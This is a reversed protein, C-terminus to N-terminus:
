DISVVESASQGMSSFISKWKIFLAVCLTTIALSYMIIAALWVGALRISTMLTFVIALPSAIGFNAIIGKDFMFYYAWYQSHNM